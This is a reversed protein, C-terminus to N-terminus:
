GARRIEERESSAKTASQQESKLEAVFNELVGKFKEYGDDKGGDFRCMNMHNAHITDNGYKRSDLSSSENPVVKSGLLKVGKMGQEEQFTFIQLEKARQSDRLIGDFDLILEKLKSSGSKPDLDILIADNTDMQAAQAITSLLRGWSALQSGRHPTGFFIIAHASSYVHHLSQNNAQKRAEILVQKM